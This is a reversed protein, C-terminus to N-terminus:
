SKNQEPICWGVVMLVFGTLFLLIGLGRLLDVLLSSYSSQRLNRSAKVVEQAADYSEKMAAGRTETNVRNEPYSLARNANDANRKAYYHDDILGLNHSNMGNGIFFLLIGIALFIGGLTGCRQKGTTSQKATGGASHRIADVIMAIIVVVAVIASISYVFKWRGLYANIIIWIIGIAIFGGSSALCGEGQKETVTTVNKEQGSEHTQENLLAQRVLTQRETTRRDAEWLAQRIKATTLSDAKVPQAAATFPNREVPVPATFPDAEIPPVPVSSQPATPLAPEYIWGPLTEAFTLGKVKGAPAQKGNENEIITEPTIHGNEALLKLHKGTVSIKDGNENYYYFNTM